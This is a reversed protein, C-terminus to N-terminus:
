REASGLTQDRTATRPFGVAHIEGEMHQGQGGVLVRQQREVRLPVNPIPQQVLDRDGFVRLSHGLRRSERKEAQSEGAYSSTPPPLTALGEKASAVAAVKARSQSCGFNSTA